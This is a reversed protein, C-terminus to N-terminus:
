ILIYFGNKTFKTNRPSLAAKKISPSVDTKPSPLAYINEIVFRKCFFEIKDTVIHNGELYISHKFCFRKRQRQLGKGAM